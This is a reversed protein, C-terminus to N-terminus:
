WKLSGPQSLGDERQRNDEPISAGEHRKETEVCFREDIIYSIFPNNLTFALFKWTWLILSLTPYLLLYM